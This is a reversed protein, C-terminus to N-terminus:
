LLGSLQGDAHELMMQPHIPTTPFLEPEARKEAEPHRSVAGMQAAQHTSTGAFGLKSLKQNHKSSLFVNIDAM